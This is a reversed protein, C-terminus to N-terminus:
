KKCPIAATARWAPWVGTNRATDYSSYCLSPTLDDEKSSAVQDARTVSAAKAIAEARKECDQELMQCTPFNNAAYAIKPTALAAMGVCLGFVVALRAYVGGGANQQRTKTSPLFM